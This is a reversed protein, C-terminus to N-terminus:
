TKTVVFCRAPKPDRFVGERVIIADVGEGVLRLLGDRHGSDAPRDEIADIM